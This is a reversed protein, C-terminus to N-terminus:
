GKGLTRTKYIEKNVTSAIVRKVPQSGHQLKNVGQIASEKYNAAYGNYAKQPTSGCSYGKNKMKEM